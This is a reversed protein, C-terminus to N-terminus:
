PFLPLISSQIHLIDSGGYFVQRITMIILKGKQMFRTTYVRKVVTDVYCWLISKMAKIGFFFRQRIRDNCTLKDFTIKVICVIIIPKIDWCRM